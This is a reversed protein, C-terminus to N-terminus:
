YKFIQPLSGPKPTKPIHCSCVPDLLYCGLTRRSEATKSSLYVSQYVSLFVSFSVSFCWRWLWVFLFVSKLPYLLTVKTWPSAQWQVPCDIVNCFQQARPNFSRYYIQNYSRCYSRCYNHYHLIFIPDMGPPRNSHFNSSYVQPAAPPLLGQGLLNHQERRSGGSWHDDHNLITM